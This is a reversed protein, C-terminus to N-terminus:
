APLQRALQFGTLSGSGPALSEWPGPLELVCAAATPFFDFGEIDPRRALVAGAAESLGPNHGILLICGAGAGHLRLMDLITAADANYLLPEVVTEGAGPLHAAMLAWTERTRAASSCLVLDPVHGAGALWRAMAPAARRGRANLPRDHDALGPQSWDSKAHRMLILKGM